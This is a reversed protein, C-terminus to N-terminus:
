KFSGGTMSIEIIETDDSRPALKSRIDEIHLLLLTLETHLDKAETIPMTFERLGRSEFAKLKNIFRQIHVTM